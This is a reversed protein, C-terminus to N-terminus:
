TRTGVATINESARCFYYKVYFTYNSENVYREPFSGTEALQKDGACPVGEIFNMSTRGEEWFLHVLQSESNSPFAGQIRM